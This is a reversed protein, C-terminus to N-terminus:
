SDIVAKKVVLHLKSNVVRAFWKGIVLLSIYQWYNNYCPVDRKKPEPVLLAQM